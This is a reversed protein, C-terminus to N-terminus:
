CRRVPQTWAPRQAADAALMDRYLHVVGTLYEVRPNGASFSIAEGAADPGSAATQFAVEKQLDAPSMLRDHVDVKVSYM